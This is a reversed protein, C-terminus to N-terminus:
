FWFAHIIFCSFAATYRDAAAAAVLDDQLAADYLYADKGVGNSAVSKRMLHTALQSHGPIAIKATQPFNDHFFAGDDEFDSVDSDAGINAANRAANPAIKYFLYKDKFIDEQFEHELIDDMILHQGLDTADERNSCIRAMVFYSM